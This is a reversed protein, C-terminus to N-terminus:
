PLWFDPTALWNLSLYHFDWSKGLTTPYMGTPQKPNSFWWCYCRFCKTNQFIPIGKPARHEPLHKVILRPSLSAFINLWGEISTPPKLGKSFYSLLWFAFRGWIPTFINNKQFWWRTKLFIGGVLSRRPRRRLRETLGPGGPVITSFVSRPHDQPNM